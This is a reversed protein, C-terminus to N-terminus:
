GGAATDAQAQLAPLARRYADVAKLLGEIEAPTIATRHEYGKDSKFKFAWAGPAAAARRLESESIEFSVEERCVEPAEFLFCHSANDRIKTLPAVVPWQSTQYSVEGYGRVSGWLDPDPAGRLAHRGLAQRRRGAPPQRQRAVEFLGKGTQFGRETSVVTEIDLPDDIVQTKAHFHDAGLATQKAPLRVDDRRERRRRRGIWRDRDPGVFRYPDQEDKNERVPAAGDPLPREVTRSHRPRRAARCRTQSLPHGRASLECGGM